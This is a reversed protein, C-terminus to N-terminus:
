AANSNTNYTTTKKCHIHWRVHDYHLIRQM